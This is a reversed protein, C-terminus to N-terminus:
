ILVEHHGDPTQPVVRSDLLAVVSAPLVLQGIGGFLSFKFLGLYFGKLQLIFLLGEKKAVTVVNLLNKNNNKELLTLNM